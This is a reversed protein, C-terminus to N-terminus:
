NLFPIGGYLYWALLGIFLAFMLKGVDKAVLGLVGSITAAAWLVLPWKIIVAVIFTIVILEIM